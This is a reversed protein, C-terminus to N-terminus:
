EKSLSTLYFLSQLIKPPVLNVSYSQLVNKNDVTLYYSNKDINFSLGRDLLEHNLAPQDGEYTMRKDVSELFDIVNENSRLM